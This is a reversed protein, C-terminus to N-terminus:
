CWCSWAGLASKRYKMQPEPLFSLLPEMEESTLVLKFPNGLLHELWRLLEMPHETKFEELSMILPRLYSIDTPPYYQGEKEVTSVGDGVAKTEDKRLREKIKLLETELKQSTMVKFSKDTFTRFISLNFAVVPGMSSIIYLGYLIGPSLGPSPGSYTV